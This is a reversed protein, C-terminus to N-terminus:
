IAGIAVGLKTFAASKTIGLLRHAEHYLTKGELTSEYIAHVFRRGVRSLETSYFDGGSQTRKKASFRETEHRWAAQFVSNDIGEGDRLRRLIVLTSVKFSTALKRAAARLAEGNSRFQGLDRTEIELKPRHMPVLVEAAVANCWRELKQCRKDVLMGANSLGTSGRWIHALEHALTFMQAAKSDAGNLFVLPAWKDSLAFGRFEKPDLKRKTNNKVVGNVMVLIGAQETRNILLALAETWTACKMREDVEFCLEKCIEKAAADAPISESLCGVFERMDEGENRAFDRYWDQRLLCIHITDLLNTSPRDVVADGVTRFDTIPLNETPPEDLFLFGVPVHVTKAFEEIQKLTPLTRGAEWDPLKPFRKVLEEQSQCDRERAWRILEPKIDVRM